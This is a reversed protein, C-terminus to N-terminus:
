NDENQTREKEFNEVTDIVCLESVSYFDVEQAFKGVHHWSSWLMVDDWLQNKTMKQFVHILDPNIGNDELVQAVGELIARKTWKSKPMEGNDYAAVAKKSMSCGSYGSQNYTVKSM